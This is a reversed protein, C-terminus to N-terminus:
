LSGAARQLSEPRLRRLGRLGLLSILLLVAAVAIFLMGILDGLGAWDGGQHSSYAWFAAGMTMMFIESGAAALRARRLGAYGLRSHFLTLAGTVSLVIGPVAVGAFGLWDDLRFWPAHLIGQGAKWDFSALLIGAVLELTAVVYVLPVHRRM